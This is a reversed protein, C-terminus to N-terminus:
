RYLSIRMGRQKPPDLLVHKPKAVRIIFPVFDKNQPDMRCEEEEEYNATKEKLTCKKGKWGKGWDFHGRIGGARFRNEKRLGGNSWSDCSSACNPFNFLDLLIGGVYFSFSCAYFNCILSM